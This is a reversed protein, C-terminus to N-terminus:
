RLLLSVCMRDALRPPWELVRMSTAQEGATVSASSVAQESMKADRTRAVSSPTALLFTLLAGAAPAAASPATVAAGPAAAAAPADDTSLEGGGFFAGDADGLEATRGRAAAAGPADPEAILFGAAAAGPEATLFGNALYPCEPRNSAKQELRRELESMTEYMVTASACMYLGCM